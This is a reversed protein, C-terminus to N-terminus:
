RRAAARPCRGCSATPCAATTPTWRRTRRRSPTARRATSSCGSATPRIRRTTTTRGAFPVLSVPPDFGTGNFHMTQLSASQVGLAAFGFPPASAPKAYVMHLGRSGLRADRRPQHRQQDRRQHPPAVSDLLRQSTLLHQEDPSFSFFNASGTLPGSSSSVVTKTPVNLMTYAAPGPIDKGVVITNGQRSIVHCGVCTLAGVDNRTLYQQRPANPFGYDYRVVTGASNWYYLGGRLDQESFSMSQLASSGVPSGLTSNVGSM